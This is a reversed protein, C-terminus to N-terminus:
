QSYSFTAMAVPASQVTRNDKDHRATFVVRPIGFALTFAAWVVFAIWGWYEYTCSYSTYYYPYGYYYSNCHYDSYWSFAPVFVWGILELISFALVESRRKVIRGTRVMHLSIAISAPQTVFVWLSLAYTILMAVILKNAKNEAPPQEQVIYSPYPSYPNSHFVPQHVPHMIASQQPMMVVGGNHHFNQPDQHGQPVYYFSPSYGPTYVQSGAHEYEQPPPFMYFEGQTTNQKEVDM